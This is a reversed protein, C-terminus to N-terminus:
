ATLLLAPPGRARAIVSPPGRPGLIRQPRWTIYRVAMPITIAPVTGCIPAHAAASCFDCVKHAKGPAHKGDAAPDAMGAMGSCMAMSSSPAADAVQMVISRVGALTLLAVALLAAVHNPWTKARRANM